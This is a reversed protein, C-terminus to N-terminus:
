TGSRFGMPVALPGGGLGALNQRRVRYLLPPPRRKEVFHAQFYHFFFLTVNVQMCCLFRLGPRSFFLAGHLTFSGSEKLGPRQRPRPSQFISCTIPRTRPVKVREASCFLLVCLCASPCPLGEVFPFFTSYPIFLLCFQSQGGVLFSWSDPCFAILPFGSSLASPLSLLEGPLPAPYATRLRPVSLFASFDVKKSVCPLGCLFYSELGDVFLLSSPPLPAASPPPFFTEGGWQLTIGRKTLHCPSPCDHCQFASGSM